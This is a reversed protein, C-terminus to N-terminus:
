CIGCANVVGWLPQNLPIDDAARKIYQGDRYVSLSGDSSLLLGISQNTNLGDLHPLGTCVKEGSHYLSAGDYFWDHPGSDSGLINKPM